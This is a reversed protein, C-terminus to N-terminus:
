WFWWWSRPAPTGTTPPPLMPASMREVIRHLDDVERRRDDLMITLRAVEGAHAQSQDHMRARLDDIHARLADVLVTSGDQADPADPSATRAHEPAPEVRPSTTAPVAVSWVERGTGNVGRRGTLTGSRLRRRVTEVSCQMITAAETVTVLRTQADDNLM